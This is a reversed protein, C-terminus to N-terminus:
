RFFLQMAILMVTLYLVTMGTGVKLMTKNSYSGPGVILANIQNSQAMFSSASALAVTLAFTRPDAGINVAIDMAVPVMFVTAGINSLGLAAISAIIALCAQVLMPPLTIHDPVLYDSVWEATGSTQMVIGLPVMGALFFVTKWSVKEYAEDITLVGTAIMGVAGIFLGLAISFGGFVVLAIALFFFFLAYPIKKPSTKEHPFSTTLVFFDPNNQFDNLAEWTSYIGLTDGPRLVIKNLDDGQIIADGRCLALVQLKHNRRMHLERAEVGVFQSSPPIVAESLGARAPSLEEAFAKLKPLVKLDYTNAFETIKEKSGMLALTAHPRITTGRLPPFQLENDQVMAIISMSPDLKLELNKITGGALSSSAPVRVEFIEGDKAYFKKFHNKTSGHLSRQKAEDGVLRPAIFYLYIMGAILLTLGIPFVSFLEFSDMHMLKPHDYYKASNRMLSNLVILSTSGVMTLMGGIIACFGMPLLLYSKSIGTRINIRNVIPMFLAVTGVARMFSASLSAAGMMLLLIKKPNEGGFRLIWRAVRSSIGTSELGASIIMIGILSIVAESSFGAFLQDAPLLKCVGLAVLVLVAVIDVRIANALFLVMTFILIILVLIINPTLGLVYM